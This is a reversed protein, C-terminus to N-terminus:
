NTRWAWLGRQEAPHSVGMIGGTLKDESLTSINLFFSPTNIRTTLTSDHLSYVAKDTLIWINGSRTNWIRRVKGSNQLPSYPTSQSFRDDWVRLTYNEHLVLFKNGNYPVLDHIKVHNNALLIEQFNFGLENGIFLRGNSLALIRGTSDIYFVNIQKKHLGLSEGVPTWFYGNYFALGASTLAWVTGDPADAVDIVRNSPLGENTSFRVWQSPNQFPLSFLQGSVFFIFLVAVIISINRNFILMLRGRRIKGAPTQFNKGHLMVATM